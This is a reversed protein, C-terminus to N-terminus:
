GAISKKAKIIVPMQGVLNRLIKMGKIINDQSLPAAVGGILRIGEIKPAMMPHDTHYKIIHDARMNM